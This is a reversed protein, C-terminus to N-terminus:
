YKIVVQSENYSNYSSLFEDFAENQTNVTKIYLYEFIEQDTKRYPFRDDRLIDKALDGIIRDEGKKQQIFKKITM